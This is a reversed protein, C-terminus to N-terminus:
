DDITYSNISICDMRMVTLEIFNWLLLGLFMFLGITGQNADCVRPVSESLFHSQNM